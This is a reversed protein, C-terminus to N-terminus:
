VKVLLKQQVVGVETAPLGSGAPPLKILECTGETTSAAEFQQSGVTIVQM